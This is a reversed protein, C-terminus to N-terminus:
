LYDLIDEQDDVILIKGKNTREILPEKKEAPPLITSKHTPLKILFETGEGLTSHVFIHGNHSRVTGYVSALGMGTGKGVEKTTFFPEFIREKTKEDMGKGCDSISIQILEQDSYESLINQTSFKLLGGDPMADQANIALNLFAHELAPFDGLVNPNNAQFSTKITINKNLSHSLLSIAADIVEHINLHTRNYHGKRAYTLLQQTLKAGRNTADIIRQFKKQIDEDAPSGMQLLEANGQIALLMNNFDHAIGGALQGIAKMKETHFLRQELDKKETIDTVIMLIANVQDDDDLLARSSVLTLVNSQDNKKWKLEYTIAKQNLNASFNQRFEIVSQPDLYSSVSSGILQEESCGLIEFFRPNAFIIKEQKDVAAMGDHMAQILQRYKQESEKLAQESEKRKKIETILETLQNRVSDQMQTFSKALLGLEDENQVDIKKDLNGQSIELTIDKLHKIPDTIIKSIIFASIVAIIIFLLFTIVVEHALTDLPDRFINVPQLFLIYWPKNILRTIAYSYKTKPNFAFQLKLNNSKFSFNHIITDLNIEPQNMDPENIKTHDIKKFNMEPYLSHALCIKNENILIAFSSDGAYDQTNSVLSQLVAVSYQIRLVGIIRNKNTYLSQSFFLSAELEEDSFYLDSVYPRNSKFCQYYFDYKSEDRGINDKKTDLINIGNTDLIACSIIYIHNFEHISKLSEFLSQTNGIKKSYEHFVPLHSYVKILDQNIRIFNDISVSTQHAAKYLAKNSREALISIVTRYSYSGLWLLPIISIFLFSILIKNRISIQNILKLIM